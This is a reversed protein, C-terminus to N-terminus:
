QVLYDNLVVVSEYEIPVIIKGSFSLVGYKGNKEVTVQQFHEKLSLVAEYEAPVVIKGKKNALGVKKGKNILKYDPSSFGFMGISIEYDNFDFDGDKYLRNVKEGSVNILFTEGNLMVAAVDNKFGSVKDYLHAIRLTGSRDYYGWKGGKKLAILNDNGFVSRSQEVSDTILKAGDNSYVKKLGGKKETVFIWDWVNSYAWYVNNKFIRKGTETYLVYCKEGGSRTEASYIIEKAYDQALGPFTTLSLTAILATKIKM